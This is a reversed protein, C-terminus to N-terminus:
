TGYFESFKRVLQSGTLKELLVRSWATLLCILFNLTVFSTRYESVYGGHLTNSFSSSLNLYQFSILGKFGTNFGM